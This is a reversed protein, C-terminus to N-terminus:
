PLSPEQTKRSHQRPADVTALRTRIFLCVHEPATFLGPLGEVRSRFPSKPSVDLLHLTHELERRSRTRDGQREWVGALMFAAPWFKPDLFLCQRLCRLAEDWRNQKRWCVGRLYRVEAMLPELASAQTYAREAAQFDHDSLLLNGLSLHAVLDSPQVSLLRQLTSRAQSWAGRDVERMAKQYLDQASSDANSASSEPSTFSTVPMAPAFRPVESLPRPQPEPSAGESEASRLRYAVQPGVWMTELRGRVPEGLHDSAGLFLWGTPRLYTGLRQAVDRAVGREYYLLANRCLVVDWRNGGELPGEPALLNHVVFRLRYRLEKKVQWRQGCPVLYRRHYTEPLSRLAGESYIGNKAVSLAQRNIDTGLIECALHAEDLLMALSYVEEGTSCGVSWVRVPSPRQSALDSVVKRVALLQAQDRFFQTHGSTVTAVLGEFEERTIKLERISAFYDRWHSLGLAAVRGEVFGHLARKHAETVVRLGTHERVAEAIAERHDLLPISM